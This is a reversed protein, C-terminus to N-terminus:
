VMKRIRSKLVLIGKLFPRLLLWSQSILKWRISNSYIVSGSPNVINRVIGIVDKIEAKEQSQFLNDGRIVLNNNKRRIIRHLIFGEGYKFLVLAGPKIEKNLPSSLDVQTLGDKLLPSMSGGKIKLRVTKGEKLLDEILDLMQINPAILSDKM